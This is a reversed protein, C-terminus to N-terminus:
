KGLGLEPSWQCRRKERLWLLLHMYTSLLCVCTLVTHMLPYCLALHCKSNKCVSSVAWLLQLLNSKSLKVTGIDVLCQLSRWLVLCDFFKFFYNFCDRMPRGGPQPRKYHEQWTCCIRLSPSCIQVLSQAQYGRLDTSTVLLKLIFGQGGCIQQTTYSLQM